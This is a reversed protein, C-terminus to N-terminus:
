SWAVKKEEVLHVLFGRIEEWGLQDPSKHYFAALRYIASVYAAITRESYNRTRMEENRRKRLPTM